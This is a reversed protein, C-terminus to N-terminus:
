KSQLTVSKPSNKLEINTGSIKAGIRHEKGDRVKPPISYLFSHKGNGCKALDQRFRDAPLTILLAGNDYIDVAVPTDPQAPDWAWGTIHRSDVMELFGKGRESVSPTSGQTEKGVDGSQGVPGGSILLYCGIGATAAAVAAIGGWVLRKRSAAAGTRPDDAEAVGEGKASEGPRFAMLAQGCSPCQVRKGFMDPNIKFKGGCACIVKICM